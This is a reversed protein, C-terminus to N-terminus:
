LKKKIVKTGKVYTLQQKVADVQEFYRSFSLSMNSNTPRTLKKYTKLKKGNYDVLRLTTYTGDFDVSYYRKKKLDVDVISVDDEEDIGKVKLTHTKKTKYDYVYRTKTASDYENSKELIIGNPSTTYSSSSCPGQPFVKGKMVSLKTAKLTKPNLAYISKNKVYYIKGQAYWVDDIQKVLVKRKKGDKSLRVLDNEYKGKYAPYYLYTGDTSIGSTLNSITDKMSKVSSKGQKMKLKYEALLGGCRILLAGSYIETYFISSGIRVADPIPLVENADKAAILLKGNEYVGAKTKGDKPVTYVGGAASAPMVLSFMLICTLVMVYLRKM